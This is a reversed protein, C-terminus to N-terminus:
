FISESVTITDGNQINFVPADKDEAMGKANLEITVERGKRGMRKVTVEKPDAIRTYGGAMAIAQLLSVNEQQPIEYGGPKQVQGLVTFRKKAFEVVTITVKPDRLYGDQYAKCISNNATLISMGAVKIEGILPLTIAGKQSVRTTTTLDPEEFILVEITDNPFLTYSSDVSQTFSRERNLSPRSFVTEENNIQSFVLPSVLCIAGVVAISIKFRFFM